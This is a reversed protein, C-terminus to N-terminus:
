SNSGGIEPLVSSTLRSARDAGPWNPPMRSQSTETSSSSRGTTEVVNVVQLIGQHVDQDARQDDEGEEPEDNSHSSLTLNGLQRGEVHDQEDGDAVQDALADDLLVVGQGGRDDGHGGEGDGADGEAGDGDVERREPWPDLAACADDYAVTLGRFRYAITFTRRENTAGYHWVIRLGNDIGTVGFSDPLGFGELETNAGPRYVTGGESVSVDTITEGKRLPIDRYAGMFSGSINANETQISPAQETVTVSQTFEGTELPLNLGRVEEAAVVVDELTLKKFGSKEATVSYRGPPLAGFRYYGSENSRVRLERGTESSRLSVAADPVVAGSPDLVSGQLGARFQANMAAPILLTCSLAFFFRYATM